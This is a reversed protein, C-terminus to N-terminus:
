DIDSSPKIGRKLVEQLHHETRKFDAIEADGLIAMRYDVKVAGGGSSSVAGGKIPLYGIRRAHSEAVVLARSDLHDSGTCEGEKSLDSLTVCQTLPTGAMLKQLRASDNKLNHITASIASEAGEFAMASIQTGTAIKASFMSTRMATTGMLSVIVLILLAILLAVGRQRRAFGYTAM